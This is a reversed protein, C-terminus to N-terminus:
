HMQTGEGGVTPKAQDPRVSIVDDLARVKAAEMATLNVTFGNLAFYYTFGPTVKRGLAVGMADLVKAQRAKLYDMYARSAATGLDVSGSDTRTAALGAVGGTYSVLPADALQVIYGQAAEQRPAAASKDTPGQAAPIAVAAACGTFAIAVISVAFPIFTARARTGKM